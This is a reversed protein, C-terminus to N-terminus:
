LNKIVNGNIYRYVTVTDYMFVKNVLHCILPAYSTNLNAYFVTSLDIM